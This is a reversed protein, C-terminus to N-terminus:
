VLASPSTSGVCASRISVAFAKNEDYLWWPCGHLRGAKCEEDVLLFTGCEFGEELM